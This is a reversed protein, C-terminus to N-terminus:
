RRAATGMRFSERGGENGVWFPLEDVPMGLADTLKPSDTDGCACWTRGAWKYGGLAHEQLVGMFGCFTVLENKIAVPWMRAM